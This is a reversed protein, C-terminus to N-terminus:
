SAFVAEANYRFWFQGSTSAALSFSVPISQGPRLGGEPLPVPYAANLGAVSVQPWGNILYQPLTPTLQNVTITSGGVTVPVTAATPRLMTLNAVPTTPPLTLSALGNAESLDVIRLQLTRVTRDSTNTIIRRVQLAGGPVGPTKTVVRNPAANVSVSPDILASTVLSSQNSPSTLGAPNPSGLMSTIGGVTTAETSVLAFDAANNQTDKLAGAQRTRVWAFQQAPLRTQLDALPTGESYGTAGSPGVADVVTGFPDPASVQVGGEGLDNIALDRTAYSSLSYGNGGILYSGGAPVVTNAPIKIAGNETVPTGDIISDTTVGTTTSVSWGAINVPAGTRNTLSVYEDSQGFQGSLRFESIEVAGSAAKVQVSVPSSASGANKDDGSYSAVVDYTGVDAYTQMTEALTASGVRYVPVKVDFSRGIRPGTTATARFTVIGTADATASNVTARLPNAQGPTVAQAPDNSNSQSTLSLTTVARVVITVNQDVTTGAEDVSRAIVTTTGPTTPTGSILAQSADFSLGDPLDGVISTRVRGQGEPVTIYYGYYQGVDGPSKGGVPTASSTAKVELTVPSSASGINDGNGAYAAVVNYVGPDAFTYDFQTRGNEPMARTDIAFTQGARPGSMATATYTIVSNFQAYRNYPVEDTISGLRVPSGVVVATGPNYTNSDSYVSTTTPKRVRFILSATATGGASDTATFMVPRSEAATPTGSVQGTSANFSLGAPLTGDMAYSVSGSAGVTRLTYIFPKGVDTSWLNPNQFALARGISVSVSQTTKTGSGDTASMLWSFTGFRDPTGTIAGTGSDFSLGRPLDGREMEFRWPPVGTTFNPDVRLAAGQRGQAALPYGLAGTPSVNDVASAVAGTIQPSAIMTGGIVAPALALAVVRRLSFKM